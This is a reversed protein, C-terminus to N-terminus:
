PLLIRWLASMDVAWQSRDPTLRDMYLKPIDGLSGQNTVGDRLQAPGLATRRGAGQKGFFEHRHRRHDPRRALFAYRGGEGLRRTVPSFQRQLRGSSVCLMSFRGYATVVDGEGQDAREV